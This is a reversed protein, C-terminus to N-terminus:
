PRAQAPLVLSFLSGADPSSVLKLTCDSAEALHKVIALGLGTGGRQRSRGNDVRFFREFVRAQVAADIGVGNDEVQILVGEDTEMAEVKVRGGPPTYRVANTALNGVMTVLAEANVWGKLQQACDLSLVTGIDVAEEAAQVVAQELLPQLVKHRLPLERRRSEVRYLELLDEFIRSLRLANRSVAKVMMGAPAPLEEQALTEAFGRITTIPTRLEHSIHAVFDTRARDMRVFTSVDTVCVVAGDTTPRLQLWIDFEGVACTVDERPKSALWRNVLEVVEWVPMVELPTRGEPHDIRVQLLRRASANLQVIRGDTDVHM